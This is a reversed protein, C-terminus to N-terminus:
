HLQAAYSFVIISVCFKFALQSQKSDINSFVTERYSALIFSTSASFVGRPSWHGLAPITILLPSRCGLVQQRTLRVSEFIRDFLKKLGNLLRWDAAELHREEKITLYM